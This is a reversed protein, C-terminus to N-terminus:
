RRAGHILLTRLYRIVGNASAWCSAQRRDLTATPVIGLWAALQRGNEFKRADGVSAVMASATIPGIGPIKALKQSARNERHWDPDPKWNMWRGILEKLHRGPARDTPSLRGALRERWGGSRRCRKAIHGIGQPIIIGYEALLGRIQNAQATRAKVFGQRARHLGSIAQQEVEQGACLAHQSPEGSRLDSRCRRCREQQDQRLTQRVAACDADLTAWQLKRAWYHASGCAEMGIQCAAPQCLLGARTESSHKKLVAKGREDVGHVQIVDKALDMGITTIKM